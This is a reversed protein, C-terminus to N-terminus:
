FAICARPELQLVSDRHFRAAYANRVLDLKQGENPAGTLVVM